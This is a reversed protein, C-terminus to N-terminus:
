EQKNCSIALGPNRLANLFPILPYPAEAEESLLIIVM